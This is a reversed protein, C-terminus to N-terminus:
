IINLTDLVYATGLVLLVVITAMAIIQIIIKPWLFKDGYLDYYAWPSIHKDWQIDLVKFTKVNKKAALQRLYPNTELDPYSNSRFADIVKILATTENHNVNLIHRPDFPNIPYLFFRRDSLILGVARNLNQAMYEIKCEQILSIDVNLEKAPDNEIPIISIKGKTVICRFQGLKPWFASGGRWSNLWFVYEADKSNDM